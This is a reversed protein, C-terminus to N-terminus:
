LGGGGGCGGGGGDGSWGFNHTHHLYLHTCALWAHRDTHMIASNNHTHVHRCTYTTIFCALRCSRTHTHTHTYFPDQLWILVGGCDSHWEKWAQTGERVRGFTAYCQLNNSALRAVPHTHSTLLPSAAPPRAPLTHLPHWLHIWLHSIFQFSLTVHCMEATERRTKQQRKMLEVSQPSYFFSFHSYTHVQWCMFMEDSHMAANLASELTLRM